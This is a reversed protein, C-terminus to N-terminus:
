GKHQPAKQMDPVFAPILVDADGRTAKVQVEVQRKAGAMGKVGPHLTIVAQKSLVQRQDDMSQSLFGKVSQARIREWEVEDVAGTLSSELATIQEHIESSAGEYANESTIGRAFTRALMDQRGRLRVIEELVGEQDVVVDSAPLIAGPASMAVAAAFSSQVLRNADERDVTAHSGSCTYSKMGRKSGARVVEGCRGCVMIGTLLNMPRRGAKVKGRNREPDGLRSTVMTFTTEPLIPEWQGEGVVDVVKRGENDRTTATIFGALRPNTLVRRVGGPSWPKNTLKHPSTLGLEHWHRGIELLTSRKEIIDDAAQRVAEAEHEIINGQHDYGLLKVSSWPRGESRRQMHGLKQRAAKREVEQRAVAALIRAVMRGTDNTLDIDGTATAVPVDHKECLLILKELDGMNRTLRDLHWAVVVDVEGAAVMGLVRNWAPRDKEGYASISIDAEHSVLDWRKFDLLRQCEEFQRANSKGEGTRDLSARTYIVARMTPM